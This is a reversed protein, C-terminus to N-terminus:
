QATAERSVSVYRRSPPRPTATAFHRRYLAASVQRVIITLMPPLGVCKQDPMADKRMYIISIVQIDAHLLLPSTRYRMTSVRTTTILTHFGQCQAPTDDRRYWTAARDHTAYLLLPALLPSSTQHSHLKFISFSIEKIDHRIRPPKVTATNRARQRCKPTLGLLCRLQGAAVKTHRRQHPAWSAMMYASFAVIYTLPFSAVARGRCPPQPRHQIASASFDMVGFDRCPM